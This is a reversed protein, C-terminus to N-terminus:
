YAVTTSTVFIPFLFFMLLMNTATLFVSLTLSWRLSSRVSPRVFPCVGPISNPANSLIVDPPVIKVIKRIILQGFKM